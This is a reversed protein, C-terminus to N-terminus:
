INIIIRGHSFKGKYNPNCIGCLKHAKKYNKLDREFVRGQDRWVCAVQGTINNNRMARTYTTGKTFHWEIRSKFCETWGIYHQAHHLKSHYHILYVGGGNPLKNLINTLQDKEM